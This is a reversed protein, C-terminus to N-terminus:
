LERPAERRLLLNRFDGVGGIATHDRHFAISAQPEDTLVIKAGEERRSHLTDNAALEVSAGDVRYFGAHHM